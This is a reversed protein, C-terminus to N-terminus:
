KPDGKLWSAALIFTAGRSYSPCNVAGARSACFQMIYLQRVLRDVFKLKLVADGYCFVVIFLETNCFFCTADLISALECPYKPWVRGQGCDDMSQEARVKTNSMYYLAVLGALGIM